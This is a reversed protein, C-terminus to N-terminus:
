VFCLPRAEDTEDLFWAWEEPTFGDMEIFEYEVHSASRTHREDRALLTYLLRCSFAESTEGEPWVTVPMCAANLHHEPMTRLGMVIAHMLEPAISRCGPLPYRDTMDTM